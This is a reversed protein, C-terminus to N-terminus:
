AVPDWLRGPWYDYVVDDIDAFRVGARAMRVALFLDGPLDLLEAAHMRVFFRLGHHSLAATCGRGKWGSGLGTWAPLAWAPWGHLTEPPEDPAHREIAGSTVEARTQRAHALLLSLAEPRLADDDDLDVIWHGRALRHSEQRALTAGVQWGGGPSAGGIRHTVDGLRVRADAVAALRADDGPHFGDGVIVIETRAYTQGLASPLARELLLGLRDRQSPICISVLPEPDTFAQEYDPAARMAELRRRNEPEEAVLVRLLAVVEDRVRTDVAETAARLDALQADTAARLDTLQRDTAGRLDALQADLADLRALVTATRRDLAHALRRRLPNRM